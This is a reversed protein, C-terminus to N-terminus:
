MMRSPSSVFFGIEFAPVDWNVPGVYVQAVFAGTERDFAGSFFCNCACWEAALEHVLVETEKESELSM